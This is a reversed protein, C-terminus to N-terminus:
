NYDAPNIVTEKKEFFYSVGTYLTILTVTLIMYYNLPSYLFDTISNKLDASLDFSLSCVLIVILFLYAMQIFTKTKAAFSTKMTKGNMEQFSRLLTITIDRIVIVIVMWLPMIGLIYFGIFATSTLIKDALPDLFIGTKSIQGYRRAHWGDYWDTLVAIFFVLLSLKKSVINESLFLVLFVPALIIRLLSLQNPLSM